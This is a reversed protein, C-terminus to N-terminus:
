KEDPEKAVYMNISDIVSFGLAMFPKGLELYEMSLVKDPDIKGIVEMKVWKEEGEM